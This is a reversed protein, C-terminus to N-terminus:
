LPRSYIVNASEVIFTEGYAEVIVCDSYRYIKDVVYKKDKSITRFESVPEMDKKPPVEKHFKVSCCPISLDIMADLEKHFKVSRCPASLDIVEPQPKVKKKKEDM